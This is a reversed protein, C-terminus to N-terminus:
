RAPPIPFCNGTDPRVSHDQNAILVCLETADAPVKDLTYGNFPSPGGYLEWPGSGRAGADAASVTDFFFHVHPRPFAATQPDDLGDPHTIDLEFMEFEVHYHQHEAHWLMGTILAFEEGPPVPPTRTPEVTPTATTTPVSTATSPSTATPNAAIQINRTAEPTATLEPRSTATLDDAVGAASTPTAADGALAVTSGIPDEEGDDGGFQQVALFAGLGILLVLVVGAGILRESFPLRSAGGRNAPRRTGGGGTAPAPTVIRAPAFPASALPVVPTM